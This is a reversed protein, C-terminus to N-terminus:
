QEHNVGNGTSQGPEQLNGFMEITRDQVDMLNLSRSEAMMGAIQNDQGNTQTVTTEAQAGVAEVPITIPIEIVMFGNLILGLSLFIIFVLSYVISPPM